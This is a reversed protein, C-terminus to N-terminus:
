KVSQIIGDKVQVTGYWSHPKPYRPGEVSVDGNQPCPFPGPSYVRIERGAEVARKLAANSSFNTDTYV